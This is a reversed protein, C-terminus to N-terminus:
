TDMDVILGHLIKLRYILDTIDPETQGSKGIPDLLDDNGLLAKIDNSVANAIVELDYGGELSFVIKGDCIENALEVVAKSIWSFGELSFNLGALQDRWHADYGASVLILDPAFNRILPFAVETYAKKLGEDGVGFPFPINVVNGMGIENIHGTGPYHPYQHSSIFLVNPDNILIDQTGNGHHVDYDVIAVRKINENTLAFKAALAINNFICFGMTRNPFAHHGPPRVIAFGNDIENSIVAKTLDIIGGAAVLAADYSYSNCYTDLDLYGINNLCTKEVNKIHNETHVMKLEEFSAKRAPLQILSKLLNQSKLEAMISNLRAACEPHGYSDHKLFIPDYIFTTKM